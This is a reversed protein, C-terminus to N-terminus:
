LTARLKMSAFREQLTRWTRWVVFGRRAWRWARRPKLAALLAVAVLVIGPHQKLYATVTRVRAITRDATQLAGCIPQVESGLAARQYAIREILRGRRIAIDILEQSM